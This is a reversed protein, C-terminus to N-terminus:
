RRTPPLLLAWTWASKWGLRVTSVVTTFVVCGSRTETSAPAYLKEKLDTIDQLRVVGLERPTGAKPYHAGLLASYIGARDVHRGVGKGVRYLGLPTSFPPTARGSDAFPTIFSTTM